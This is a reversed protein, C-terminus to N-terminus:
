ISLDLPDDSVIAALDYREKCIINLGRGILDASRVYDGTIIAQVSATGWFAPPKFLM